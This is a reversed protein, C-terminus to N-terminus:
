IVTIKWHNFHFSLLRKTKLFTGTGFLLMLLPEIMTFSKMDYELAKCKYEKLKEKYRKTYSGGIEILNMLFKDGTRKQLDFSIGTKLPGFKNLGVICAIMQMYLAGKGLTSTVSENYVFDVTDALKLGYAIHNMLEKHAPQLKVRLIKEQDLLGSTPLEDRISKNLLSFVHFIDSGNFYSFVMLMFNHKFGPAFGGFPSEHVEGEKIQTFFSPPAKFKLHTGFNMQIQSKISYSRICTDVINVLARQQCCVIIIFIESKDFM